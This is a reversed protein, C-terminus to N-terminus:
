IISLILCKFNFDNVYSRNNKLANANKRDFFLKFVLFIAGFKSISM